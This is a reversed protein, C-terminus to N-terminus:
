TCAGVGVGMGVGLVGAAWCGQLGHYWCGRCWAGESAARCSHMRRLWCSCARGQGGVEEDVVEVNFVRGAKNTRVPVKRAVKARITWNSDYPNLAQM